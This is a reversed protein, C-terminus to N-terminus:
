PMVHLTFSRVAVQRAPVAATSRNIAVVKESWMLQISCNVPAGACNVVAVYDPFHAHLNEVWNRVDYAALQQPTCVQTDCAAALALAGTDDSVETGAAVLTGPAAASAWYARNGRMASALSGAQLAILSRVRSVQTGAQAAAQLKALGLLGVAIIVLTVLVEILSFGPSKM